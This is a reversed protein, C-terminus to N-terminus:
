EEYLVSDVYGVSLEEAYSHVFGAEGAFKMANEVADVAADDLAESDFGNAPNNEDIQVTVLVRVERM